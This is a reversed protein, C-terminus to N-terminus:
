KTLEELYDSTGSISKKITAVCKALHVTYESDDEVGLRNMKNIVRILRTEVEKLAVTMHAINQHLTEVLPIDAPKRAQSRAVRLIEEHDM